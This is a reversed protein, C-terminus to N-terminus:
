TGPPKGSGFLIGLLLRFDPIDGLGFRAEVNYNTRGNTGLRAGALITGGVETDDGTGSVDWAVLSAGGGFYLNSRTNPLPMNFHLDANFMYTTVNDGWGLDISPALRFFRLKEGLLAQAGAVFQDPGTGFGLRAGYGNPPGEKEQAQSPSIAGATCALVFSLVLLRSTSKM